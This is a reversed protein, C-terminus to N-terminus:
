DFSQHMNQLQYLHYHSLTAFVTTQQTFHCPKRQQLLAASCHQTETLNHQMDHHNRSQAAVSAHESCIM